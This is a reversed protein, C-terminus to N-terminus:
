SMEATFSPPPAPYFAAPDFIKAAADLRKEDIKMERM